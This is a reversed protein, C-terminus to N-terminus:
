ATTLAEAKSGDSPSEGYKFGKGCHCCRSFLFRKVHQIIPIQIKWHWIHWRPAKWWPRTSRLLYGYIINAFEDAMRDADYQNKYGQTISRYLSDTPNEAFWLLDFLNAKMYRDTKKWDSEFYEYAARRFLILTIAHASFLPHGDPDFLYQYEFKFERKIAELTAEKGHRARMFWGCSDDTGDTEPDVHWIVALTKPYDIYNGKENKIGTFPINIEFAVTMPDHM